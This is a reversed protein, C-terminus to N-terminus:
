FLSYEGDSAKKTIFNVVLIVALNAVSNLLGVATSFSLKNNKLGQKYVYTSIVESVPLNIDNQMLYAKEYGVSMVHGCDMIMKIAVTPLIAPLDVHLVRQFRSAGDIQAAEHLESSVGSLAAIYIISSWGLNQWIGSWVYLHRFAKVSTRVDLPQGTGGLMKYITGVLGVVPNLVMDMMGVLVVTSIFHPMYSVNQAVKKLVKRRCIHLLLAMFVAMPIQILLNYFSISLTNKLLEPFKYGTLLQKFWKLGVWESGVIGQKARYNRFAIQTGWMPVYHDIVIYVFPILSLMHLQWNKKFRKKFLAWKNKKRVAPSVTQAEASKTKAM